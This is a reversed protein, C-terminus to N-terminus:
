TICYAFLMFNAAGQYFATISLFELFELKLLHLILFYYTFYALPIMM